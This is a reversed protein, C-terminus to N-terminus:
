GAFDRQPILSPVCLGGLGCEFALKAINLVVTKVTSGMVSPLDLRIRM